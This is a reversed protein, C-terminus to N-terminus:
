TRPAGLEVRKIVLDRLLLGGCEATGAAGEFRRQCRERVVVMAAM